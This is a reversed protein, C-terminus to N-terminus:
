RAAPHIWGDRHKIKQTNEISSSSDSNSDHPTNPVEKDIRELISYSISNHAQRWLKDEKYYFLFVNEVMGNVVEVVVAYHLSDGSYHCNGEAIAKCAIRELEKDALAQANTGMCLIIQSFIFLLARKMNIDKVNLIYM